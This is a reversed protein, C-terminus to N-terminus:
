RADGVFGRRWPGVLTLVFPVPLLVGAIVHIDRVLGRRGVVASLSSIYLIAATVLLVAFLVANAWHLLREALDFRPLPRSGTESPATRAAMRVVSGPTSTTAGSSGTARGSSPSWSSATSGSSRSTATCPHSTSASRDAM